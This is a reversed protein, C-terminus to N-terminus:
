STSDAIAARLLPLSMGADEDKAIGTRRRDRQIRGVPRLDLRPPRPELAKEVGPEPSGFALEDRRELTVGRGVIKRQLDFIAQALPQGLAAEGGLAHSPIPQQFSRRKGTEFREVRRAAGDEEAAFERGPLRGLPQALGPGVVLPQREQQNQARAAGALRGQEAGPQQRTQGQRPCDGLDIEPADRDDRRSRVGRPRERLAQKAGRREARLEGVASKRVLREERSQEAAVGDRRKRRHALREDHHGFGTADCGIEGRGPWRPEQQRDVLPSRKNLSTSGV